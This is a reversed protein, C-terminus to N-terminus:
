IFIQFGITGSRKNFELSGLRSRFRGARIGFTVSMSFQRSYKAHV